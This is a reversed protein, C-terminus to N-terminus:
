KQNKVGTLLNFYSHQYYKELSSIVLLHPLTFRNANYVYRM